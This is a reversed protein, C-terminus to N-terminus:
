VNVAASPRALVVFHHFGADGLLRALARKVLRRPLLVDTKWVEDLNNVGVCSEVNYGVSEFMEVMSTKTFFRVHTRDLIGGDTYTWRGRLLGLVHPAYQVNPITALVHGQSTLWNRCERLTEWPDVIHELVDNFSLLDYREDRGALAEPFYGDIVEDFGRGERAHAASEPVAEVGVIRADVGLLRRLTTGFGGGACGVDLASRVGAPVSSEADPRPNAGYGAQQPLNAMM